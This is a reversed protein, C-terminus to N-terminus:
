KARQWVILGNATDKAVALGRPVYVRKESAPPNQWLMKGKQIAAIAPFKAMTIQSYQVDTGPPPKPKPWDTRPQFLIIDEIMTYNGSSYKRYSYEMPDAIIIQYTGNVMQLVATKKGVNAQWSGEIDSPKINPQRDFLLQNKDKKQIEIPETSFNEKMNGLLDQAVRNQLDQNNQPTVPKVSSPLPDTQAVGTVNNQTVVNKSAGGFRNVAVLLVAIVALVGFGLVIYGIFESEKSLGLLPPKQTPRRGRSSQRPNQSSPKSPPMSDDTM